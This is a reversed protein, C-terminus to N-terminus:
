NVNDQIKKEENKKYEVWEKLAKSYEERVEDPIDQGDDGHFGNNIPDADEPLNVDKGPIIVYWIGSDTKSFHPEDRIIPEEIANQPWNPIQAKNYPCGVSHISNHHLCDNQHIQRECIICAADDNKTDEPLNGFPCNPTCEYHIYDTYPNISRNGCCTGMCNPKDSKPFEKDPNLLKWERTSIPCVNDHIFDFKWKDTDYFKSFQGACIPCGFCANKKYLKQLRESLSIFPSNQMYSKGYRLPKGNNKMDSYQKDSM